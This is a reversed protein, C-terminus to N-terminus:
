KISMVVIATFIGNQASVVFDGRYKKAIGAIITMGIGHGQSSNKTTEICDMNEFNMSVKCSNLVRTVLYQNKQLIEIILRPHSQGSCECGRIANDLLNCIVTSLDFDTIPIGELDEKVKVHTEINKEEAEMKKNALIINVVPNNCYTRQSVHGYHSKIEDIIELGKKNEGNKILSYITQIHNSIDHKIELLKRDNEVSMEYYKFEMNSLERGFDMNKSLTIQNLLYPALVGISINTAVMCIMAILILWSRRFDILIGDSLSVALVACIEGVGVVLQTGVTWVIEKGRIEKVFQFVVSTAVSFLVLYLINYTANESKCSDLFAVDANVWTHYVLYAAMSSIALTIEKFLFRSLKQRATDEYLLMTFILEAVGIVIIRTISFSPTVYVLIVVIECWLITQVIQNYKPQLLNILFIGSIIAETLYVIIDYLYPNM